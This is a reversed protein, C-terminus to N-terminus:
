YLSDLWNIFANKWDKVSSDEDYALGFGHGGDRYIHLESQKVTVSLKALYKITEAINLRYDNSAAALFHPPLKEPEKAQEFREIYDNDYILAVFDPLSELGENQARYTQLQAVYGGASFGIVGVKEKDFDLSDAMNRMTEMSKRTDLALADNYTGMDIEFQSGDKRRNTRYKVVMCTIGQRSLWLAIDTGEKDIWVDRLGGGPYIVLGINKNKEKDAPFVMYTPESVYRYVRNLGTLSKPHVSSDVYTEHYPHVIPNDKIGDPYLLNENPFQTFLESVPRIKDPNGDGAKTEENEIRKLVIAENFIDNFKKTEETEIGKSDAYVLGLQKLDGADVGKKVLLESAPNEQLKNVKDLWASNLGAAEFGNTGFDSTNKFTLLKQYLIKFEGFIQEARENESPTDIVPKQKTGCSTIIMLVLASLIFNKM